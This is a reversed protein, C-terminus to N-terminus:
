VTEFSIHLLCRIETKPSDLQAQLGTIMAERREEIKDQDDFLSRRKTNRLKELESKRKQYELREEPSQSPTKQAQRDLQEIQKSLKKIDAELGDELSTAWFELRASEENFFTQYYEKIEDKAKQINVQVLANIRSEAPCSRFSSEGTVHGDLLMKRGLESPLPNGETDCVTYVLSETTEYGHVTLLDLQLFGPLASTEDADEFCADRRNQRGGLVNRDFRLHVPPLEKERLTKFIHQAELGTMTFPQCEQRKDALYRRRDRLSMLSIDDRKMPQFTLYYSQPLLGTSRFTYDNDNFESEPYYFKLLRWFLETMENLQITTKELRIQFRRRVEEDFEQFLRQKATTMETRITKSLSEQLQTFGKEIQATTRCSKVIDVIQKEIKQGSQISGFVDDSANFVGDFLKLREKYLSHLKVDTTNSEDLFNVVVVEHKQGYRHCRGIRSELLAPNWPLDYNVVLSCFPLDLGIAASDTAVLIEADDAFADFIAQRRQIHHNTSTELLRSTQKGLYPHSTRTGAKGNFVVVKGAYGNEELQRVLYYQTPISSTFIIAKRKAGSKVLEDIGTRLGQILGQLKPDNTIAKAQDIFSQIQESESKLQLVDELTTPQKVEKARQLFTELTGVLAALSSAASKKVTVAFSGKSEKPVSFRPEKGFFYGNIERLFKVQKKDPRYSITVSRRGPLNMFPLVQRRLTRKFYPTLQRHLEEQREPESSLVYREYFVEANPFAEPDIFQMLTWLEM